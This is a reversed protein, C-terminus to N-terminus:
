TRQKEIAALAAAAADRLHPDDSGLAVTLAPVARLDGLRGLAVAATRSVSWDPFALAEILGPASAPDGTLALAWAAGRRVDRLPSHLAEVLGPVAARGQQGLAEAAERRADLNADDLAGLLARIAAEGGTRGVARIALQRVGPFVPHALAALLADWGAAGAATLADVAAPHAARDLSGLAAAANLVAQPAGSSVHMQARSLAEALPDIRPRLAAWLDGDPLLPDLAALRPHLAADAPAVPIVPVGLALATAWEYTNFPSAAWDPTALAVLVFADRLAAEVGPWWEGGAEPNPDVWAAYGAEEVAMKLTYARESAAHHYSILLQSM